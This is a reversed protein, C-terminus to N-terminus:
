VMVAFSTSTFAALASFPVLFSFALGAAEGFDYSQPLFGLKTLQIAPHKLGCGAIKQAASPFCARIQNADTPRLPPVNPRYANSRQSVRENVGQKLQTNVVDSLAGLRKLPKQRHLLFGSFRNHYFRRGQVESFRPTLSIRYILAVSFM